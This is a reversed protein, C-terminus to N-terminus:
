EIDLLTKLVGCDAQLEPIEHLYHVLAKLLFVKSKTRASEERLISIAKLYEEQDELDIKLNKVTSEMQRLLLQIKQGKLRPSEPNAPMGWGLVKM